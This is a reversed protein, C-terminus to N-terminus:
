DMLKRVHDSIPYHYLRSLREEDDLVKERDFAVFLDQSTKFTWYKSTKHRELASRLDKLTNVEIGNVESIISGVGIARTRHAQSDPFIHTLLLRPKLQEKTELYKMLEPMVKAMAGVHNLTLPMILMGAVVEYDIPDYGPYITHIPLQRALEFTFNIEKRSGQRYVVMTVPQGIKLRAVFDSIAIRDESWPVGMEGYNDVPYGNIEYIMDGVKVGAKDLLSQRFVDVVYVGGPLPNGLYETLASDAILQVVGFSPKHVLKTKRLDDVIIKFENIPIIYNVNQAGLITSTNIGIVQGARNLSPGGSSGPNIPASMQIVTQGGMNERGSVVGTTSKLAHQSLPYGLAILEDSRHVHDSDGLELFCIKKLMSVMLQKSEPTLRLLALDREPCMGVIDVDLIQKGMTPIQVWVSTASAVVHANTVIEGSENIFFGSGAAQGQAPTKYPQLLDIEAIQSFVQVVTNKARAQVAVWLGLYAGPTASGQGRLSGLSSTAQIPTMEAQVQVLKRALRQQQVWLMGIAGAFFVILGAVLLKKM